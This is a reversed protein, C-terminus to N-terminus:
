IIAGNIELSRHIFLCYACLKNSEIAVRTLGRPSSDITGKRGWLRIFNDEVRASRDSNYVMEGWNGIVNRRKGM